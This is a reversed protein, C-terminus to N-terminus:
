IEDKIFSGNVMTGTRDKIVEYAIEVAKSLNVGRQEALLYLTIMVDGFADIEDNRKNKIIANALEGLEESVKMFQVSYIEPKLLGKASAWELIETHKTM